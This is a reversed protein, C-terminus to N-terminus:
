WETSESTSLLLSMINICFMWCPWIWSSWVSIKKKRFDFLGQGVEGGLTVGQGEGRGLLRM